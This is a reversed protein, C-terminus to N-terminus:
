PTAPLPDTEPAHHPSSLPSSPTSMTGFRGKQAPNHNQKELDLAAQKQPRCNGAPVSKAVSTHSHDKKSNKSYNTAKPTAGQRPNHCDTSRFDPYGAQTWTTIAAVWLFSLHGPVAHNSGKREALNPLDRTKNPIEGRRGQEALIHPDEERSEPELRAGQYGRV